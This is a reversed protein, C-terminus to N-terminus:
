NQDLFLENRDSNHKWQKLLYKSVLYDAPSEIVIRKVMAFCQLTHKAAKDLVYSNKVKANMFDHHPSLFVEKVILTGTEKWWKLQVMGQRNGEKEEIDFTKTTMMSNEIHSVNSVFTEMTEALSWIPEGALYEM